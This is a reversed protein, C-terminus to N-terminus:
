YILENGLVLADIDMSMFAKTADDPTEVIPMGNDNFSTNLLVPVGCLNWMEQLLQALPGDSVTQLRCTGDEHTIAPIM